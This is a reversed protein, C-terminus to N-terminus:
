DEQPRNNSRMVIDEHEEKKNGAVTDSKSMQVQSKYYIDEHYEKKEGMVYDGMIVNVRDKDLLVREQVKEMVKVYLSLLAKGDPAKFSIGLDSLKETGKCEFRLGFARGNEDKLTFNRAVSRSSQFDKVIPKFAYANMREMIDTLTDMLLDPASMVYNFYGQYSAPLPDIVDWSASDQPVFALDDLAIAIDKSASIEAKGTKPDPVSLSLYAEYAKAFRKPKMEIDVTRMGKPPIPDLNLMPTVSALGEQSCLVNLKAGSLSRNANNSLDLKVIVCPPRYDVRVDKVSVEGKTNELKKKIMDLYAESSSDVGMLDLATEFEKKADELREMKFLLKGLARAYDANDKDGHAALELEELAEDLKQARHYLNGLNYHVDARTDDVDLAKRLAIEAKEHEDSLVCLRAKSLLADVDAPNQALHKKVQEQALDLKGLDMALRIVNLSTEFDRPNTQLADQWAGLADDFMQKQILCFGLNVYANTEKPFHEIINLFCATAKDFDKDLYDQIGKQFYQELSVMSHDGGM